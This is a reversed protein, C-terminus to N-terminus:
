SGSGLPECLLAKQASYTYGSPDNVDVLDVDVFGRWTVAASGARCTTRANVRNASGGGPYVAPASPDSRAVTVFRCGASDCWWAQLYVAVRAKPCTGSVKNWWGHISADGGSTHPYDLDQTYTCSGATIPASAALPALRASGPRSTTGPRVTFYGQDGASSEASPPEGPSDELSASAPAITAAALASGLLATMAMKSYRRM